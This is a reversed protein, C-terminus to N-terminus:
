KWAEAQLDWVGLVRHDSALETMEIGCSDRFPSRELRALYCAAPLMDETARRSAHWLIDAPKTALEADKPARTPALTASAGVDIPGSSAYWAGREDRAVLSEIRAGLGNRVVLGGDVRSAELRGRAAREGQVVHQVPIRTPLYDGALVLSPSQELRLFHQSRTMFTGVPARDLFHVVTGPEPRLGEGPSMGAYVLRREVCSARHLREDLLAMSQSALKVDLGQFYIGYVLLAVTTFLAIAPITVLLLVPRRKRAIWLFNLPGIVIGFLILLLVFVQYPLEGIGPLALESESARSIGDLRPAMDHEESALEYSSALLAEDDMWGESGHFVLLGMGCHQAEQGSLEARFRPEMWPAISGRELALERGRPGAVLLMGGSRVWAVIPELGAEPPLETRADLVVLDLSTYAGWSRALDDFRAHGMQADDNTPTTGPAVYGSNVAQRSIRESWQAVMSPAVAEDSVALIARYDVAGGGAVVDSGRWDDGRPTRLRLSWDNAWQGGTPLLLEADMREGPALDFGRQFTRELQWDAASADLRVRAPEGGRNHLELRLPAWGKNLNAPWASRARVEIDAKELRATVDGARAPLAPALAAALALLLARLM